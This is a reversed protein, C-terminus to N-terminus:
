GEEGQVPDPRAGLQYAIATIRANHELCEMLSFAKQLGGAWTVAGHRELVAACASKAAEGVARALEMTGPSYFGVVPVSGLIMQGEILLHRSFDHGALSLALTWPPHAHVVAQIKPDAAYIELHMSVESSPRFRGELVNGSPDILILDEETLFGKHFGSPTILFPGKPEVRVSINGDAGAILGKQYLHRSVQLIERKLERLLDSM